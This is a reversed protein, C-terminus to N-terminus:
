LFQWVLDIISGLDGGNGAALAEDAQSAYLDTMDQEVTSLLEGVAEEHATMDVLVGDFDGNNDRGINWAEDFGGEGIAEILAIQGENACMDIAENYFKGGEGGGSSIGSLATSAINLGFKM